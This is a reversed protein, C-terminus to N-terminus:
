NQGNKLSLQFPTWIMFKQMKVKFEQANTESSALGVYGYTDEVLTVRNRIIKM